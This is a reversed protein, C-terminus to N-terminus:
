PQVFLNPHDSCAGPPSRRVKSAAAPKVLLFLDEITAELPNNFNRWPIILKLTGLNGLRFTSRIFATQRGTCLGGVKL